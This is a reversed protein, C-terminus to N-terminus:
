ENLNRNHRFVKNKLFVIKRETIHFTGLYKLLINSFTSPEDKSGKEIEKRLYKFQSYIIERAEEFSLEQNEAVDKILKRLQKQILM